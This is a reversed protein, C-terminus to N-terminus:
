ISDFTAGNQLAVNGEINRERRKGAEKEKKRGKGRGGGGEGSKVADM